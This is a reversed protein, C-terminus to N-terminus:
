MGLIIRACTPISGVGDLQSDILQSSRNEGGEEDLTYDQLIALTSVFDIRREVVSSIDWLVELAWTEWLM